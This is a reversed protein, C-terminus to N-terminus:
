KGWSGELFKYVGCETYKDDCNKHIHIKTDGEYKGDQLGRKCRITHTSHTQYYPCNM